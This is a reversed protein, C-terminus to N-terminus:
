EIERGPNGIIKKSDKINKIIVSGAGVVCMKGIQINNIITTGAGIWTEEGIKVTGALAVRPSIHVYNEIDNDHDIIAGTNIICQKGIKTGPNIIAGAMIVTGEEIIVDKAIIGTPHIATIYTVPYKESITKRVSNNGIAIIFDHTERYREILEVKGLTEKDCSNDDLIGAIIKGNLKLIDRVVKSHGGDGIVIVPRDM